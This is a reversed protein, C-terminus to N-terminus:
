NIITAKKIENLTDLVKQEFENNSVPINNSIIPQMAEKWTELAIIKNKLESVVENLEQLQIHIPKM